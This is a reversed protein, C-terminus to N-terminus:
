AYAPPIYTSEPHWTRLSHTVDSSACYKFPSSSGSPSGITICSIDGGGTRVCVGGGVFFTFASAIDGGGKGENGSGTVGGGRAVKKPEWGWGTGTGVGGDGMAM